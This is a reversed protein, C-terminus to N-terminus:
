KHLECKIYNQIALLDQKSYKNILLKEKFLRRDIRSKWKGFGAIKRIYKKIHENSFEQYKQEIFGEQKIEESRIMFKNVIQEADKGTSLATGQKTRQIPIYEVKLVDSFDVQILLSTDWYSNSGKNFIFNGQGYVITSDYYKEYTGICHSHQCAVLDAGKEVIKRCVKQLYPSPYRYHEKGGHYLVIVYDCKEKLEAIHDLSEFPDFPNAGPTDKTAITFEHEACTYIGVKINNQHIIYPKSAKKLNTGAGIFPINKDELLKVTSNLGEEGYDLIHNNALTVLAPNLAQIGTITSVPAKINPGQKPISRGEETLPTELNFIRLDVSEWINKLENGLLSNIDGKNFLNVNSETPVVDSGILLKM